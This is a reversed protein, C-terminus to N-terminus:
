SYTPITESGDKSTWTGDQNTNGTPTWETNQLALDIVEPNEWVKKM